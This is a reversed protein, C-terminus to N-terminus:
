YLVVGEVSRVGGEIADFYAASPSQNTPNLRISTDGVLVESYQFPGASASSFSWTFLTLSVKLYLRYNRLQNM